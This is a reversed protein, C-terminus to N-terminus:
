IRAMMNMDPIEKWAEYTTSVCSIYSIINHLVDELLVMLLYFEIPPFTNLYSRVKNENACLLTPLWRSERTDTLLFIVDHSTILKQLNKCDELVHDVEQAPVPHGPM